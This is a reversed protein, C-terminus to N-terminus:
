SETDGEDPEENPADVGGEVGPDSIVDPDGEVRKDIQADLVGKIAGEPDINPSFVEEIDHEDKTM